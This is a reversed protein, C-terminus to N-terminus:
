ARRMPCYAPRAGTDPRTRAVFVFVFVFETHVSVQGFLALLNGDGLATLTHGACAAPGDLEPSLLCARWEHTDILVVQGGEKYKGKSGWGGHVVVMRGGAEAAEAAAAPKGPSAALTSSVLVEASHGCSPQLRHPGALSVKRWEWTELDLRHVDAEVSSATDGGIILMCPGGGEAPSAHCVVAAHYARASPPTGTTHPVFWNWNRADLVHVDNLYDDDKVGGFFICLDGHRACSHGSRAPPEQGTVRPNFRPPCVLIRVYTCAPMCAHQGHMGCMRACARCFYIRAYLASISLHFWIRDQLCLIRLEALVEKHGPTNVEGGFVVLMKQGQGDAGGAQDVVAATHFSRAVASDDDLRAWRNAGGDYEYADPLTVVRGQTDVADGGTLLLTPPKTKVLTSSHGWRACPLDGQSSVKIWKPKANRARKEKEATREEEEQLRKALKEDEHVLRARRPAVRRTDAHGGGDEPETAHPQEAPPPPSHRQSFQSSLQSQTSPQALPPSFDEDEESQLEDDPDRQALQTSECMDADDQPAATAGAVAPEAADAPPAAAKELAGPTSGRDLVHAATAPPLRSSGTRAQAGARKGAAERPSQRSKVLAPPPARRASALTAAALVPAVGASCEVPGVADVGERARLGATGSLAPPVVPSDCRKRKRVPSDESRDECPPRLCITGVFGDFSLTVASTQSAVKIGAVQEMTSLSVAVGGVTISMGGAHAPAAQDTGAFTVATRPTKPALHAHRLGGFGTAAAPLPPAALMM